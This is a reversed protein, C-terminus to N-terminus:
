DDAQCYCRDDPGDMERWCGLCFYDSPLWEATSREDDGLDSLAEVHQAVVRAVIGARDPDAILEDGTKM